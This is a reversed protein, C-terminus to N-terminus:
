AADRESQHDHAAHDEGLNDRKEDRGADVEVHFFDLFTEELGAGIQFLKKRERRKRTEYNFERTEVGGNKWAACEDRRRWSGSESAEAVGANKGSERGNGLLFRPTLFWYNMRASISVDSDQLGGNESIRDMKDM